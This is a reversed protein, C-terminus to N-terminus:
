VQRSMVIREVTTGNLLSVPEIGERKFQNKEFLGIAKKNTSLVVLKIDAIKKMRAWNVAYKMLATGVGKERFNRHTSIGLERTRSDKGLNGPYLSLILVGAFKGQTEAIAWLMKQDAISKVWRMKEMAQNATIVGVQDESLERWHIIAPVLDRFAGERVSVLHSNKESSYALNTKGLKSRLAAASLASIFLIRELM